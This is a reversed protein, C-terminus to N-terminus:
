QRMTLSIKNWSPPFLDKTNHQSLQPGFWKEPYCVIKNPNTNFYAAWWSFSSNAIINHQCCSMLLLEQWDEIESEPNSNAREFELDLPAESEMCKTKIKNIKTEVEIIDADECFYLITWKTNDTHLSNLISKISNISNIYYEVGLIPHCNQLFKYDGIRFHMSIVNKNEYKKYFTNRVTQISENLNIYQSITSYYNDFYKHSQYYGYLMVGGTKKIIDPSIQIKNYKFDKEKYLPLKVNKIDIITVHKNLAKLFKDWYTNNRSDSVLKNMPFKFVTKTEISLAITTYIQFLQNGLGGMIVCTIM